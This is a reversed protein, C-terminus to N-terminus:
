RRGERRPPDDVDVVLLGYAVSSVGGVILGWPTGFQLAVGSATCVAGAIMALRARLAGRLRSSVLGLRTRLADTVRVDAM